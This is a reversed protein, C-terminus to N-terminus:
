WRPLSSVVSVRPAAMVSEGLVSQTTTFDTWSRTRFRTVLRDRIQGAQEADLCSGFLAAGSGTLQVAGFAEDCMERFVDELVPFCGFAVDQLRNRILEGSKLSAQISRFNMTLLPEPTTLGKGGPDPLSLRKYILSTSVHVDPVVLVYCFTEGCIHEGSSDRCSDPDPVPHVIEGRGQCRAMGGHLFFAVDSGLAVAFEQLTEADLGLQWLRDLALLTAAADSSGGGLGAGMPVRKRLVIDLGALEPARGRRLAEDRMLVAARYVLNQTDAPPVAEPTAGDAPEVVLRVGEEPDSRFELEDALSIAQMLTDIDHFGDPRRGLIELYLNLKAPATVTLARRDDRWEFQM